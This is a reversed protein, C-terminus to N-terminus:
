KKKIYNEVVQVVWIVGSIDIIWRNNLCYCECDCTGMLKASAHNKLHTKWISWNRGKRQIKHCIKAVKKLYLCLLLGSWPNHIRKSPKIDCFRGSIELGFLPRSLLKKCTIYSQEEQDQVFIHKVVIKNM